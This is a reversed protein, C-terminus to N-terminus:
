WQIKPLEYTCCLFEGDIFNIFAKRGQKDEMLYEQKHLEVGM